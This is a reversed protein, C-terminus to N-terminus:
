KPATTTSPTYFDITWWPGDAGLTVGVGAHTSFADLINDRHGPSAMWVDVVEDATEEGRAINEAGCSFTEVGAERLRMCPGEGDPNIHAYFGRVRMDVAHDYAADHARDDGMLPPLGVAAREANVRQLVQQATAYEQECMSEGPPVDFKNSSGIADDLFDGMGCASSPVALAVVIALRLIRTV